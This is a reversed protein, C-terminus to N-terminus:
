FCLYFIVISEERSGVEEMDLEGEQAAKEEKVM